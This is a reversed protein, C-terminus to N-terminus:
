SSFESSQFTLPANRYKEIIVKCCSQILDFVPQYGSADGYWPDPVSARSGPKLEELFLKVRDSPGTEALINELVDGALAYIIDYNVLDSRDFQRALQKSIDIGNQRCVKQSHPHPPQGVHYSETGASDITWDLGAKEAQARLIGEAMPSRCINGLCVMLIRMYVSKFSGRLHLGTATLPQFAGGM